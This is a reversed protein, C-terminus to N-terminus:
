LRWLALVEKLATRKDPAVYLSTDKLYCLKLMGDAGRFRIMRLNIITGRHIRMFGILTPMEEVSKLTACIRYRKVNETLYSEVVYFDVYNGEAQAYLIDSIFVSYAGDTCPLEIKHGQQINTLNAGCSPCYWLSLGTSPFLSYQHQIM